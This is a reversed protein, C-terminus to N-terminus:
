QRRRRPSEGRSKKVTTPNKFFLIM